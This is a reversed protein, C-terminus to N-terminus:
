LYVKSAPLFEDIDDKGLWAIRRALHKLDKSLKSNDIQEAILYVYKAAFMHASGHTIYTEIIKRPREVEPELAPDWTENWQIEWNHKLMSMEDVMLQEYDARKKNLESPKSLRTLYLTFQIAFKDEPYKVRKLSHLLFIAIYEEWGRLDLRVLSEFLPLLIDLLEGYNETKDFYYALLGACSFARRGHGIKDLYHPTSWRNLEWVEIPHWSDLRSTELTLKFDVILEAHKGSDSGYDQESLFLIDNPTINDAVLWLFKKHEPVDKLKLRKKKGM